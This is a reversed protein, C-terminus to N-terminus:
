KKLHVKSGDGLLDEDSTKRWDIKHPDLVRSANSRAGLGGKSIFSRKKQPEQRSDGGNTRSGIAENKLRNRIGPAVAKARSLWANKIRDKSAPSYGDQRAKGWLTKLTNQLTADKKLAEDLETRAEKVLMKREFPTLGGLKNSLISTVSTACDTGIDAVAASFKEQRYERREKELTQEAESPAKQIERKAIDPIEGGNAWIFNALHRAALYLNKDQTRTGYQSAHYLLDEIIPNALARYAEQNETKQLTSPFAKMLKVLAKPANNNLTNLLFEPNAQNVLTQEIADYEDAKGKAEKALEPDPFVEQYKPLQFYAAKLEPIDKFLEAYKGDKLSKIGKISLRGSEDREPLAQEGREEGEAEETEEEQGEEEVDEDEEILEAGEEPAEEETEDEEGEPAEEEIDELQALDQAEESLSETGTGTADDPSYFIPLTKFITM